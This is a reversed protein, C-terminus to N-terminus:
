RNKKLAENEEILKLNKSKLQLIEADRQALLTYLADNILTIKEISKDKEKILLENAQKINDISNIYNIRRDEKQIYKVFDVPNFSLLFNVDIGLITAIRSLTKKNIIRQRELKSVQKQSVDILDGLEYQKFNLINRVLFLNFGHHVGKRPNIHKTDKKETM